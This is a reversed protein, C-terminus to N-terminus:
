GVEDAFNKTTSPKLYFTYGLTSYYILNSIVMISEGLKRTSPSTMLMLSSWYMIVMTNLFLVASILWFNQEKLIDNENPYIMYERFVLLSLLIYYFCKILIPLPDLLHNQERCLEYVTVYVAIAIATFIVPWRLRKEKIISIFMGTYLAIETPALLRTTLGPIPKGMFKSIIGGGDIILVVLALVAGLKFAVPNVKWRRFGIFTIVILIIMYIIRSATYDM